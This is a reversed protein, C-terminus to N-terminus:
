KHRNLYQSVIKHAFHQERSYTTGLKMIWLPSKETVDKVEDFEDSKNIDLEHMCSMSM